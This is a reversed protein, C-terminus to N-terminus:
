GMRESDNSIHLREFRSSREKDAIITSVIESLEADLLLSKQIWCIWTKINSSISCPHIEERLRFQLSQDSGRWSARVLPRHELELCGSLISSQHTNPDM